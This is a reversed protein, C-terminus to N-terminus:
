SITGKITGTVPGNPAVLGTEYNIKLEKIEDIICTALKSAIRNLTQDPDQEEKQEDKFAAVIKRALREQNLAM